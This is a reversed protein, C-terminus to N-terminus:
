VAIRNNSLWGNATMFKRVSSELTNCANMLLTKEEDSRQLQAWFRGWHTGRYLVQMYTKMSCKDFVIDNRSLWLAWCIAAIGTFVVSRFKKHVGLIWGSFLHSINQPTAFGFTFHM